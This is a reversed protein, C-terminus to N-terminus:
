IFDMVEVPASPICEMTLKKIKFSSRLLIQNKELKSKKDRILGHQLQKFQLIAPTEIRDTLEFIGCRAWSGKISKWIERLHIQWAFLKRLVIEM